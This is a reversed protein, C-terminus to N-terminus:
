LSFRQCSYTSLFQLSVVDIKSTKFTNQEIDFLQSLQETFGAFKRDNTLECWRIFKKLSWTKCDCCLFEFKQKVLNRFEKLSSRLNQSM